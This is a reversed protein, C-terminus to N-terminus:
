RRRRLVVLGALGLLAGGPAPVTIDRLSGVAVGLNGDPGGTFAVLHLTEGARGLPPIEIVGRAFAAGNVADMLAFFEPTDFGQMATVLTAEDMGAFLDGVSQGIGVGPQLAVVLSLDSVEGQDDLTEILGFYSFTLYDNLTPPPFVETFSITAGPSEVGDLQGGSTGGGTQQVLFASQGRLRYSGTSPSDLTVPLTVEDAAAVGVVGAVLAVGCAAVVRVGM